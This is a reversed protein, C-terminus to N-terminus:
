NTNQKRWRHVHKIRISNTSQSPYTNSFVTTNEVYYGLIRYRTHLKTKTASLVAVHLPIKNNAQRDDLVSTTIQNRASGVSIKINYNM